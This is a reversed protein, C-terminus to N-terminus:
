TPKTMSFWIVMSDTSMPVGARAEGIALDAVKEGAHWVFGQAGLHLGRDIGSELVATARPLSSRAKGSAASM